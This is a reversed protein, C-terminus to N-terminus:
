EATRPTKVWSRPERGLAKLILAVTYPVPFCFAALPLVLLELGVLAQRGVGPSRDLPDIFRYYRYYAYFTFCPYVLSVMTLVLRVGAPLVTPDVNGTLSCVLVAPPIFTATQYLVWEFQGKLWLTRLIRRGDARRGDPSQRVKDMVQLHGSGWRLRQRFFGALTPPTQESSPYPLFEPWAGCRLYTRVGLELDETLSGADFGGAQELLTRAIFLNTGGVFPLRRFLAPLYWDHAIAQYLCAVKCLPSLRFFNRVQFAPGQLLAASPDGSLRRSAVYLLVQRDPRSEADYFGYAESRPDTFSLAWNLARGKTSPVERGVCRGPFGGDFDAPVVVHKVRPFVLAEPPASRAPQSMPMAAPRTRPAASVGAHLVGATATAALAPPRAQLVAQSTAAVAALATIREEVVDQTTPFLLTFVEGANHRLRGSARESELRAALGQALTEAMRAVVSATSEPLPRGTRRVVDVAAGVESRGTLRVYALAVPVALATHVAAALEAEHLDSSQTALRAGLRVEAARLRRPSCALREAVATVAVVHRPLAGALEPEGLKHCLHVMLRRYERRGVVYETVALRALLGLIVKDEPGPPGGPPTGGELRAQVGALIVPRRAERARVEKEDTAIVIEFRTPDYELGLLHDITRGIVEAENRAPVIVSFFPLEVGRRRALERVQELSLPPRRHWYRRDAYRKWVFFRAFLLFFVVYIAVSVLYVVEASTM